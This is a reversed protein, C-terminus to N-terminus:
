SLQPSVRRNFRNMAKQPGEKLIVHVAESAQNLMERVKALDVERFPRLVYSVLDEVPREPQTGMRVRVFEDSELAGIISKLGNHGGASGRSRIRLTGLPLAVEDVLVMLDHPSLEYKSLLRGVALGSLNMYTQPKALMVEAGELETTAALAQSERRGWQVGCEDALRDVAMFGLNHPTLHYEYGPNGLGVILKVLVSVPFRFSSVRLWRGIGM